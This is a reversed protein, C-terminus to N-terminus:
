GGGGFLDLQDPPPRRSPGPTARKSSAPGAPGRDLSRDSVSAVDAEFSGSALFTRLRQGPSLVRADRVVAGSADLTCSYGRALVAAPGIAELQRALADSRSGAQGLGVEAARALRRQHELALTRARRVPEAPGLRAHRRQAEALRREAYALADRASTTLDDRATALLETARRAAGRPDALVPHRAASALRQREFRITRALDTSFRRALTDLQRGLAERDPSLRVAAQTPTACREDAVLEAISTDTEHGIAAVVPVACEVIARAMDRDNFPALDEKSGGGRTVLVADVGLREHDRSLRDIARAIQRAAAEGQVRVPVVAVGVAPCRRAMTTLVDQLAAGSASTVVAIRRPFTPLSRKREPAFWGLARLEECLRRFAAEAAGEGVPEIREAVLTIRGQPKYFEIRGTVVVEQGDAPTFPLSKLRNAFLVAGLVAGADKLQFYLHTTRRAGSVEGVVRLTGPLGTEVAEGVMAAVRSVTLPGERAPRSPPQRGASRMKDPDFPLRGM